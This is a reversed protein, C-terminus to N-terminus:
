KFKKAINIITEEEEKSLMNWKGHLISLYEEFLVESPSLKKGAILIKRLRDIDKSSCETLFDEVEIELELGGYYFRPM